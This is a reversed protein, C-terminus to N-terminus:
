HPFSKITHSTYPSGVERTVDLKAEEKCSGLRNEQIATFAPGQLRGQLPRQIISIYIYTYTCTYLCVCVYLYTHTHTCM